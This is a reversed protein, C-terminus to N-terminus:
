RRRQHKQSLAALAVRSVDHNRWTTSEYQKRNGGEDGVGVQAQSPPTQRELNYDSNKIPIVLTKALNAILTESPYKYM